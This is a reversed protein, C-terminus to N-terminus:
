SPQNSFGWLLRYGIGTLSPRQYNKIGPDEIHYIIDGEKSKKTRRYEIPLKESYTEAGKPHTKWFKPAYYLPFGFIDTKPLKGTMYSKLRDEMHQKLLNSPLYNIPYIFQINRTYNPYNAILMNNNIIIIYGPQVNIKQMRHSLKWPDSDLSINTPKDLKFNPYVSSIQLHFDYVHTGPILYFDFETLAIYAQYSVYKTLVSPYPIYCRNLNGSGPLLVLPNDISVRLSTINTNYLAAFLKLINVNQRISWGSNFHPLNVSGSQYDPEWNKRLELVDSKYLESTKSLKIEYGPKRPRTELFQKIEEISNLRTNEDIIPGFMVYGNRTIYEILSPLIEDM